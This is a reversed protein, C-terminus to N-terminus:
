IRHLRNRGGAQKEIMVVSTSMKKDFTKHQFFVKSAFFHSLSLFLSVKGGVETGVPGKLSSYELKIQLLIKKSKRVEPRLLPHM